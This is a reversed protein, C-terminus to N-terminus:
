LNNVNIGNTPSLQTLLRDRPHFSHLYFKVRGAWVKERNEAPCDAINMKGIPNVDMTVAENGQAVAALVQGFNTATM